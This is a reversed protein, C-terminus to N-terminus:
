LLGRPMEVLCDIRARRWAPAPAPRAMEALMGFDMLAEERLGPFRLHIEEKKDIALIM